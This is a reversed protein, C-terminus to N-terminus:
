MPPHVASRGRWPLRMERWVLVGVAILLLAMPVFLSRVSTFITGILIEIVIPLSLVATAVSPPVVVSMGEVFAATVMGENPQLMESVSM